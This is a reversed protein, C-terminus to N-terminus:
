ALAPGDDGSPTEPPTVLPTDVARRNCRGCLSRHNSMDWFLDPRARVSQIHDTVEALRGCAACFPHRAIRKASYERWKQTGYRTDQSLRRERRHAACPGGTTKEPCGPEVCFLTPKEPV